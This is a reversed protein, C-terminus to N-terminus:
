PVSMWAVWPNNGHVGGSTIPWSYVPTTRATPRPTLRASTPRATAQSGDYPHPAHASHSARRTLWHGRQVRTAWRQSAAEGAPWARLLGDRGHTLLTGGDPTFALALMGTEVPLSRLVRGEVPDILRVIRDDGTCAIRKGDASMAMMRVGAVAM